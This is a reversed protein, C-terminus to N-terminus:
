AQPQVPATLRYGRGRVSQLKAGLGPTLANLIRRLKSIRMDLSRSNAVDVISGSGRALQERSLILGPSQCFQLLLASDGRSTSVRQDGLSLSNGAPDFRIEAIRYCEKIQEPLLGGWGATYQLLRELRLMLERPAYPKAVYDDAGAELGQIRDQVSAMASLMVVPFRYGAARLQLLLDIGSRGALQQELLLLHPTLDELLGEFELISQLQLFQWGSAEFSHHLIGSTQPDPDLM